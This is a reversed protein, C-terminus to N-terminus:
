AGDGGGIEIEQLVVAWELVHDAAGGCIGGGAICCFFIAGDFFGFGGAAVSERAM